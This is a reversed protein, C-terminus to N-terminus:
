SSFPLAKYAVPTVGTHRKFARIFNSPETYGVRRAVENVPIGAQLLLRAKELRQTAVFDQFSVNFLQRFGEKLRTTNTGFKRSLGEITVREDLNNIIYAHIRHLLERDRYVLPQAPKKYEANLEDLSLLLLQKAQVEMAVKAKPGTDRSKIIDHLLLHARLPITANDSIFSHERGDKNLEQQLEPYEQLLEQLFSRHLEMSFVIYAGPHFMVEHKGQLLGIMRFQGESLQIEVEELRASVRDKLMYYMTLVPQRIQPQLSFGKEIFLLDYWITLIDFRIRQRIIRGFGGEFAIADAAPILQKKLPLAAPSIAKLPQSLSDIVFDM